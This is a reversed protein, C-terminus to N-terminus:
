GAPIHCAEYLGGHHSLAVREIGQDASWPGFRVTGAVKVTLTTLAVPDISRKGNRHEIPMTRVVNLHVICSRISSWLVATGVGSDVFVPLGPCSWETTGPAFWAGAIVMGCSFSSFILLLSICGGLCSSVLFLLYSFFICGGLCSSVLFLPYSFLFAVVLDRLCWSSFILLLFHLWWSVFVGLIRLFPAESGQTKTM